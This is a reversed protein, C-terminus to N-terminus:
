RNFENVEAEVRFNGSYLLTFAKVEGSAESPAGTSIAVFPNHQHSSVGRTSQIVHLGQTLHTELVYRERGWSGSLQTMHFCSIDSEYDATMSFARVIALSSSPDGINTFEVRRIIADYEHLCTYYLRVELGSFLDQMTVILTTSNEATCRIGPLVVLAPKGPVICHRKYRLPTISSGSATNIAFSPTRYDGTGRDSYELCISGKSSDGVARDFSAAHKVPSAARSAPRSAPRSVPRSVARSSPQSAYRLLTPASRNAPSMKPQFDRAPSRPFGKPTRLPSSPPEEHEPVTCTAMNMLRESLNRMRIRQIIEPDSSSRHRGQAKNERWIEQLEDLTEAQMQSPLDDVVLKCSIRKEQLM